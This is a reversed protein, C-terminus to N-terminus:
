NNPLQKKGRSKATRKPNKPTVGYNSCSPNRCCNLQVLQGTVPHRAARPILIHQNASNNNAKNRKIKASTPKKNLVSGPQKSLEIYLKAAMEADALASHWNITNLNSTTVIGFHVCADELSIHRRRKLHNTVSTMLCEIKTVQLNVPANIAARKSESDLMEADFVADYAVVKDNACFQILEEAFQPEDRLQYNHIGHTKIAGHSIKREQPNLRTDFRNETLQANIIEIAAVEIILDGQQISTGTTETDIIVVRNQTGMNERM